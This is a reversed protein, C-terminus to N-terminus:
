SNARSFHCLSTGPPTYIYVCTLTTFGIHVSIHAVSLYEATCLTGLLLFLTYPCSPRPKQSDLNWYPHCTLLVQLFISTYHYCKETKPVSKSSIFVSVFLFLFHSLLYYIRWKWKKREIWNELICGMWIIELWLAVILVVHPFYAKHMITVIFNGIKQINLCSIKPGNNTLVSYASVLSCLM